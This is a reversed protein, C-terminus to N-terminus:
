PRKIPARAFEEECHDRENGDAGVDFAEGTGDDNASVCWTWEEVKSASFAASFSRRLACGFPKLAPEHVFPRRPVRAGAPEV